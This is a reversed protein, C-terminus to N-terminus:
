KRNRNVAAIQELATTKLAQLTAAFAPVQKLTRQPRDRDFFYDDGLAAAIQNERVIREELEAGGSFPDSDLQLALQGSGLDRIRVDEFGRIADIDLGETLERGFVTFWYVGPLYEYLEPISAGTQSRSRGEAFAQIVEHKASTEAFSCLKGFLVPKATCLEILWDIWAPQWQGRPIRVHWRNLGYTTRKVSGGFTKDRTGFLLQRDADFLEHAAEVDAGLQFKYPQTRGFRLVPVNPARLATWVAAFNDLELLSHASYVDIEM